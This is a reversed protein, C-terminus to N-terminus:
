DGNKMRFRDALPIPTKPRIGQDKLAQGKIAPNMTHIFNNLLKEDDATVSMKESGDTLYERMEPITGWYVSQHREDKNKIHYEPSKSINEFTGGTGAEFIFDSLVPIVSIVREFQELSIKDIENWISIKKDAFWTRGHIWKGSGTSRVRLLEGEKLVGEFHVPRIITTDDFSSLITRNIDKNIYKGYLNEETMYDNIVNCLRDHTVKAPCYAVFNKSMTFTLTGDGWINGFCFDPNETVLSLLRNFNM